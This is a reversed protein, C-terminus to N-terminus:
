ETCLPGARDVSGWCPRPTWGQRAGLRHRHDRREPPHSPGTRLTHRQTVQDRFARPAGAQGHHGDVETPQDQQDDDDQDQPERADDSESHGASSTCMHGEPELTLTHAVFFQSSLRHVGALVEPEVPSREAERQQDPDDHPNGPMTDGCADHSPDDAGQHERECGDHEGDDPADSRLLDAQARRTVCRRIDSGGTSSGPAQAETTVPREPARATWWPTGAPGGSGCSSRAPKRPRLRPNHTIQRGIPGPHTRALHRRAQDLEHGPPEDPQTSQGEDAHDQHEDVGEDEVRASM